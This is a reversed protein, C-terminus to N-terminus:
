QDVFEVHMSLIGIERTLGMKSLQEKLAKRM